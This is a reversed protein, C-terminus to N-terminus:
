MGCWQAKLWRWQKWLLNTVQYKPIYARQGVTNGNKYVPHKNLVFSGAIIGGDFGIIVGHPADIFIGYMLNIPFYWVQAHQKNQRFYYPNVQCSVLGIFGSAPFYKINAQGERL